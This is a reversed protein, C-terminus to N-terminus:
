VDVVCQAIFKGDKAEIKLQSYTAAKVEIKVSHKKFNIAEGRATGTLANNRIKVLFDSFVMNNITAEALLRNLWEVLLEEENSADCSIEIKKVKDVKKIDFMVNFMAKAAEQFAEELSEGIGVIGIDAKHDFYKYPMFIM